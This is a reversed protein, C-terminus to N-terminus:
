SEQLCLQRIRLIEELIIVVQFQDHSFGRAALQRLRDHELCERAYHEDEGHYVKPVLTGESCSVGEVEVVQEHDRCEVDEGKVLRDEVGEM